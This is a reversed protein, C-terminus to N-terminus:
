CFGNKLHGASVNINLINLLILYEIKLLSM